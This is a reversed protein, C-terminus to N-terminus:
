SQKAPPTRKVPAAKAAKADAKAKAKAEAEKKERHREEAAEIDDHYNKLSRVIEDLPKDTAPTPEERIYAALAEQIGYLGTRQTEVPYGLDLNWPYRVGNLAGLLRERLVPDPILSIENGAVDLQLDKTEIDFSNKGVPRSWAEHWAPRIIELAKTAHERGADLRRLKDAKKEARRAELTTAIWTLVGGVGVGILGWIGAEM